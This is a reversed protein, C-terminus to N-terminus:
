AEPDRLFKRRILWDIALQLGRLILLTLGPVLVAIFAVLLSELLTLLTGTLLGLIMAAANGFASFRNTMGSISENTFELLSATLTALDLRVMPLLIAFLVLIALLQKCILALLILLRIILPRHYYNKCLFPNILALLTLLLAPVPWPLIWGNLIPNVLLFVFIGVVSVGVWLFFGIHRRSEYETDSWYPGMLFGELFDM